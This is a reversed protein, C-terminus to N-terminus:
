CRPAQSCPGRQSSPSWRQRSSEKRRHGAWGLPSDLRPPNFARVDIGDRRLRAWFMWPTASAAGLWDYLLRVRVGRKTAAVLAEAFERGSHDDRLIYSEFHVWKKAAAIAKLWAPYNEKSDCMLKVSNGAILPAGAARSLAREALDRVSPALEPDALM